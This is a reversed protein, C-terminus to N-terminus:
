PQEYVNHPLAIRWFKPVTEVKVQQKVKNLCCYIVFKVFNGPLGLASHQDEDEQVPSSPRDPSNCPTATPSYAPTGLASPTVAKIGREALLRALSPTTSVTSTSNRRSRTRPTSCASSMRSSVVSSM